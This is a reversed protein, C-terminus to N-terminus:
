RPTEDLPGGCYPCSARQAFREFPWLRLCRLCRIRMTRFEKRRLAGNAARREPVKRAARTAAAHQKLM